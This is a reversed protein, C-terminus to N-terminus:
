LCTSIGWLYLSFPTDMTITIWLSSTGRYCPCWLPYLCHQSQRLPRPPPPPPPPSIIWFHYGSLLECELTITNATSLTPFPFVLFSTIYLKRIINFSMYKTRWQGLNNDKKGQTTVCSVQILIHSPKKTRLIVMSLNFLQFLVKAVYRLVGPMGAITFMSVCVNCHHHLSCHSCVLTPIGPITAPM